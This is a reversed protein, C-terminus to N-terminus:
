AGGGTGGGGGSGGTGGGGTGGSGGGRGRLSGLAPGATAMAAGMAGSKVAKRGDDYKQKADQTEDLVNMADNVSNVDKIKMLATGMAVVGDIMSRVGEIIVGVQIIIKRIMDVIDIVKVIELVVTAWGAPGLAAKIALKMLESILLDLLSLAIGCLMRCSDATSQFKNSILMAIQSDAEIAVTWVVSIHKEFNQAAEGEWHPELQGLGANLNNRVADLAKAINNWAAANQDIKEFDGLLPKILTDVLNEGTVKEYVWNVGQLKWGAAEILEKTSQRGPRDAAAANLEAVPDKTDAYGSM